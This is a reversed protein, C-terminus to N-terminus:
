CGDCAATLVMGYRLGLVPCCWAAGRAVPGHVKDTPQFSNCASAIVTGGCVETVTKSFETRHRSFGSGVGRVMSGWSDTCRTRPSSATAHLLSYPVVAYRLGTVPPAAAWGRVMSGWPATCRSGQKFDNHAATLVVVLGGHMALRGAGCLSKM